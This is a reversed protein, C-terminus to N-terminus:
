LFWGQVYALCSVSVISVTISLALLRKLIRNNSRSIRLMTKYGIVVDMNSQQRDSIMKLVLMRDDNTKMDISKFWDHMERSISMRVKNEM